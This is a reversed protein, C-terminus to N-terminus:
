FVSAVTRLFIYLFSDVLQVGFDNGENRFMILCVGGGGGGGGCVCVLVHICARVCGM